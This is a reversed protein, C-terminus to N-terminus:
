DPAGSEPAQRAQALCDRIFSANPHDDGLARGMDALAREFLTIAEDRRGAQLYLQGLNARAGATAQHSPGM